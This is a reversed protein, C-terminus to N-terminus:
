RRRRKAHRRRLRTAAGPQHRISRWVSRNWDPDESSVTALLVNGDVVLIGSIARAGPSVDPREISRAWGPLDNPVATEEGEMPPTKALIKRAPVADGRRDTLVISSLSITRGESWAHWYGDDAIFAEEMGIPVAISWGSFVRRDVTLETRLAATVM